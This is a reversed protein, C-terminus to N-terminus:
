FSKHGDVRRVLTSDNFLEAFNDVDTCWITHHVPEEAVQYTRNDDLCLFYEGPKLNRLPVLM